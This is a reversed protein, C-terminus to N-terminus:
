EPEAMAARHLTARGPGSSTEEGEKEKQAEKIPQRDSVRKLADEDAEADADYKRDRGPQDVSPAPAM